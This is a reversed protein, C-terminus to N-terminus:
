YWSNAYWFNVAGQISGYRGVMYDYMWYLQTYPNTQWDSGHSAMKSGPLSQPLGYAGSDANTATIVWSSENNIIYAWGEIESQSLGKEACIDYFAGEASSSAVPYVISEEVYEIPEEVYEVGVESTIDSNNEIYNVEPDHAASTKTVLSGFVLENVIDQVDQYNYGAEELQEKREPFNQWKGLLVEEAIEEDTKSSAGAMLTLSFIGTMVLLGVGKSLNKMYM